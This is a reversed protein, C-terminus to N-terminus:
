DSESSSQVSGRRRRPSRRPSRSRRSDHDFKHRRQNNANGGGRQPKCMTVMVEQGDIQGGDMYKVAKEAMNTEEYEVFCCHRFSFSLGSGGPVDVNAIKGYTGFIELLHEKTINRTL